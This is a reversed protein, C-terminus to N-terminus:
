LTIIKFILIIMITHSYLLGCISCYCTSSRYRQSWKWIKKKGSSSLFMLWDSDSPLLVSHWWQYRCQYPIYRHTSVLRTIKRLTFLGTRNLLLFSRLHVFFTHSPLSKFVAICYVATWNVVFRWRFHLLKNFIFEWSVKTYTLSPLQLMKFPFGYPFGRNNVYETQLLSCVHSVDNGTKILCM